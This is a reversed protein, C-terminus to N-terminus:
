QLSLIKNFSLLLKSIVNIKRSTVKDKKHFTRYKIKEIYFKTSTSHMSCTCMCCDVCKYKYIIYTYVCIYVSFVSKYKKGQIM